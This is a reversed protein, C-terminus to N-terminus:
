ENASINVKNAEQEAQLAELMRIHDMEKDVLKKLTSSENVATAKEKVILTCKQDLKTKEALLRVIHDEKSTLDLVKRSNQEDLANYAETLASIEQM